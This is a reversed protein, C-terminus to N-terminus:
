VELGFSNTKLGVFKLYKRCNFTQIESQFALQM